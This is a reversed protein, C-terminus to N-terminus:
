KKKERRTKDQRPKSQSPKAQSTQNDQSTITKGRSKDLRTKGQPTSHQRTNDQRARTDHTTKGQRVVAKYQTPRTKSILEVSTISALSGGVRPPSFAGKISPGKEKEKKKIKQHTRGHDDKDDDRPADVGIKDKRQTNPEDYLM